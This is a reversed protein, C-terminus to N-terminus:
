SSKGRETRVVVILRGGISRTVWGPVQEQLRGTFMLLNTHWGACASLRSFRRVTGAKVNWMGFMPRSNKHRERLGIM